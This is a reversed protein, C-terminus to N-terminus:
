EGYDVGMDVMAHHEAGTGVYAIPMGGQQELYRIFNRVKLPMEWVATKGEVERDLYNGFQLCVFDPSAVRMMKSYRSPCFEFVRRPLKTTTTIETIEKEYGSRTKVEEWTIEAAEAYPGSWGDRNNVRIPYPRIVAYSHGLHRLSVGSEAYAMAPNVVRSTCYTPDIGHQLCLDFGQGMEYLITKGELLERHLLLSTDFHCADRLYPIDYARELNRKRMIHDRRAAGVGQATSGIDLMGGANEEAIHNPTIIVARYDIILELLGEFRSQLTEVEHRLLEPNIVSSRGLYVRMKRGWWLGGVVGIPIHHTVFKEVGAEGKVVVTHGANPSLCGAVTTIGFRQVLFAALKGKSESGAQGGMLVNMKGFRMNFRRIIPATTIRGWLFIIITAYYGLDM